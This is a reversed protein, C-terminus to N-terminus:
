NPTAPTEKQYLEYSAVIARADVADKESVVVKVAGAGGGVVWWPMMTGMIEDRLWSEINANTLLSQVMGAELINGTFVETPNNSM